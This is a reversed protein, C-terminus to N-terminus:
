QSCILNFLSLGVLCISLFVAASAADKSIRILPDETKKYADNAKEIATNLLEAIFMIFLSFIVFLKNIFPTNWWFVLPLILICGVVELRFALELTWTQKFGRLSNIPARFLHRIIMM